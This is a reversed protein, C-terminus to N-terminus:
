SAAAAAILKKPAVNTWAMRMGGAVDDVALDTLRLKTWGKAGWSGSAPYVANGLAAILLEQQEAQLKLTGVRATEDLTAFVKKRVRFDAQGQHSSEVVELCALALQRFESATM